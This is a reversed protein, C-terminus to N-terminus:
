FQCQLLTSVASMHKIDPLSLVTQALKLDETCSTTYSHKTLVRFPLQPRNLLYM